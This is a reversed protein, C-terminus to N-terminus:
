QNKPRIWKIYKGLLNPKNPPPLLRRIDEIHDAREKALTEALNARMESVELAAKLREIEIKNEDILDSKIQTENEFSTTDNVNRPTYVRQLESHDIQWEGKGGKVGSIKGSKLAKTLTPRSVNYFKVAERISVKAM